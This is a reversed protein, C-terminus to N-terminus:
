RVTCSATPEALVPGPRADASCGSLYGAACFPSISIASWGFM